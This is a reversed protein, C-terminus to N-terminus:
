KCPQRAELMADAYKYAADAIEKKSLRVLKPFAGTQEPERKYVADSVLTGQLASAAFYDRLTMGHEPQMGSNAGGEFPFALPNESKESM